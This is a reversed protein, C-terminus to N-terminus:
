IESKSSVITVRYNKIKTSNNKLIIYNDPFNVHETKGDREIAAIDYKIAAGKATDFTGIYTLKGGIRIRAMFKKGNKRVGRYGTSSRVGRYGISLRKPKNRKPEVDLNHVMDPFNLLTTSQNAKLSARDYAVAAEKATDYTGIYTKKGGISIGSAKFKKRSESKSVGRYGVTNTSALAKQIPTYGVPAKKPYNLKSLSRRYKIAEKDYAEAAQKATDYSSGLYKIKRDITIKARFKGSEKKVVGFYGSKSKSRKKRKSKPM